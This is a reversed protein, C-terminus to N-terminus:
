PETVAVSPMIPAVGPLPAIAVSTSKDAIPPPSMSSESTSCNLEPLGYSRPFGSLRVKVGYALSLRFGPRLPPPRLNAARKKDRSLAKLAEERDQQGWLPHNFTMAEGWIAMAFGPDIAQAALFASHADDFEFSHLLMVGRSFADQAAAAGSNPFDLVGLILPPLSADDHEEQDHAFSQATFALTGVVVFVLVASVQKSVM